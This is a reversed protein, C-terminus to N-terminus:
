VRQVRSLLAAVGVLGSVCVFVYVCVLAASSLKSTESRDMEGETRTSDSLNGSVSDQLTQVLSDTERLETQMATARRKLEVIAAHLIELSKEDTESSQQESGDAAAAEFVPAIASWPLGTREVFLRLPFGATM